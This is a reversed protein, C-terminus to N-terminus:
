NKLLMRPEIEGLQIRSVACAHLLEELSMAEGDDNVKGGLCTNAIREFIRVGIDVGVQDAEHIHQLSAAVVLALM